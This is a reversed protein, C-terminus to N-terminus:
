IKKKKVENSKEKHKQKKELSKNKAWDQPALFAKLLYDIRKNKYKNTM